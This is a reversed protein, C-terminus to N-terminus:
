AFTQSRPLLCVSKPLALSISTREQSIVALGDGDTHSHKFAARRRTLLDDLHDLERASLFNPVVYVPPGSHVPVLRRGGGCGADAVADGSEDLFLTHIRQPLTTDRKSSKNLGRPGDSLYNSQLAALEKLAAKERATAM